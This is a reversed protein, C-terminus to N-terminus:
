LGVISKLNEKMPLVVNRYIHGDIDLPNPEDLLLSAETIGKKALWEIVDDKLEASIIYQAHSHNYREFKYRYMLVDYPVSSPYYVFTGKQARIRNNFLINDETINPVCHSKLNPNLRRTHLMLERIEEITIIANQRIYDYSHEFIDLYRTAYLRVFGTQSNNADKFAFLLATYPCSTFDILNTPLGYHQMIFMYLSRNLEYKKDTNVSGVDFINQGQPDYAVGQNVCEVIFYNLLKEFTSLYKALKEEDDFEGREMLDLDYVHFLDAHENYWRNFTSIVLWSSCSHGRFFMEDKDLQGIVHKLQELDKIKVENWARYDAIDRM